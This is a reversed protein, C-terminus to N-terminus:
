FGKNIWSTIGNSFVSLWRKGVIITNYFSVVALLILFLYYAIIVEGSFYASPKFLVICFVVLTFLNLLLALDSNAFRVNFFGIVAWITISLFKMIPNFNNFYVDIGQNGDISLFFVAIAVIVFLINILQAISLILNDRM